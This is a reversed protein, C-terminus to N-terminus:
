AVRKLKIVPLHKRGGHHSVVLQLAVGPEGLPPAQPSACPSGKPWRPRPEFRPAENAAPRDFYVESPTRGDLTQHPRHENYWEAYLSLEKRFMRRQMPVLLRRTCEAKLSRIFREVVAISGHQGVAGFRPLIGHPRCWAKFDECWFQSGKDCIIYRPARGAKSIIRGLFTRVQFSTPRKDFVALGMVRRSFHDVVAAVWWCFPWHQPLAFPLWPVTFGATTPM